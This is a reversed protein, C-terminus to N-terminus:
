TSKRDLLSLLLATSMAWSAKALRDVLRAVSRLHVNEPQRLMPIARGQRDSYRIDELGQGNAQIADVIRGFLMLRQERSTSEFEHKFRNQPGYQAIHADIDLVQYLAPYAFDVLRLTGWALFFGTWILSVVCVVQLLAVLAGPRERSGARTLAKQRVGHEGPVQVAGSLRPQQWLRPM